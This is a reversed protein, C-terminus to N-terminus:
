YANKQPAWEIVLVGEGGTAFFTYRGYPSNPIKEQKILSVTSADARSNQTRISALVEGTQGDLLAWSIDRQEPSRSLAPAYSLACYGGRPDSNGIVLLDEKAGKVATIGG